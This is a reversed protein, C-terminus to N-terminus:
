KVTESWVLRSRSHLKSALPASRWPIAIPTGPHGLERLEAAITEYKEGQRRMEWIFNDIDERSIAKAEMQISEASVVPLVHWLHEALADMSKDGEWGNRPGVEPAFHGGRWLLWRVAGTWKKTPETVCMMRLAILAFLMTENERSHHVAEKYHTLRCVIRKLDEAEDESMSDRNKEMYAGYQLAVQSHEMLRDMRERPQPTIRPHTRDLLWLMEAETIEGNGARERIQADEQECQEEWGEELLAAISEKLTLPLKDETWVTFAASPPLPVNASFNEADSHLTAGVGRASDHGGGGQKKSDKAAKTRKPASKAKATRRTSTNTKKAPM